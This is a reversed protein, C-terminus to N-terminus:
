ALCTVVDMFPRGYGQRALSATFCGTRAREVAELHVRPAYALCTSSLISATLKTVQLASQETGVVEQEVLLVDLGEPVPVQMRLWAHILM